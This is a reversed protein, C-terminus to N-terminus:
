HALLLSLGDAHLFSRTMGGFVAERLRTHGYAGAILLDAGGGDKVAELVAKGPEGKVTITEIDLSPGCREIWRRALDPDAGAADKYEVADPAQILKVREAQRLIPVSAKLARAAERSGDWAVAVTRYEGAGRPALVAAGDELLLAEFVDVLPGQGQAADPDIVALAALRAHATAFAREHGSAHLSIGFEKAVALAAAEARKREDRLAEIAAAGVGSFGDGAIMMVPADDRGLFVVEIEADYITAMTKAAALAQRDGEGGGLPVYIM